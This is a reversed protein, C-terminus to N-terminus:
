RFKCRVAVTADCSIPSAQVLWVDSRVTAVRTFRAASPHSVMPLRECPYMWIKWFASSTTIM